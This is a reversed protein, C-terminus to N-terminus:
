LSDCRQDQLLTNRRGARDYGLSGRHKPTEGLLGRARAICLLVFLNVVRLVYEDRNRSLLRPTPSEQDAITDSGRVGLWRKGGDWTIETPAVAIRSALPWRYLLSRGEGGIGEGRDPVREQIQLSDTPGMSLADGNREAM